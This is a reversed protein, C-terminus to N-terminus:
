REREATPTGAPDDELSQWLRIRDALELGYAVYSRYRDPAREPATAVGCFILSGFVARAAAFPPPPVEAAEPPAVSGGSLFAALAACGAPTEFSAAEAAQMAARRHAETPQGIWRETAQLADRVAPAAGDWSEQRACMWAWWVAERRPLLHALFRLADVHREAGALAEVFERPGHTPRRVEAADPELEAAESLRAVLTALPHPPAAHQM